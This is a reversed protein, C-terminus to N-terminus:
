QYGIEWRKWPIVHLQVGQRFELWFLDAPPNIEFYMAMTDDINCHFQKLQPSGLHSVKLKALLCIPQKDEILSISGWQAGCLSTSNGKPDKPPGIFRLIIWFPNLKDSTQNGEFDSVIMWFSEFPNVHTIKYFTKWSSNAIQMAMQSENWLM